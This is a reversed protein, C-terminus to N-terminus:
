ESVEELLCEECKTEESIQYMHASDSTLPNLTCSLQVGDLELAPGTIIIKVQAM